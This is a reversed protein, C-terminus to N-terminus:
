LYPGAYNERPEFHNARVLQMTKVMAHRTAFTLDVVPPKLPHRTRLAQRPPVLSSGHLIKHLKSANEQDPCSRFSFLLPM